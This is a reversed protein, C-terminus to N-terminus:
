LYYVTRFTYPIANFFLYIIGLVLATWMNMALAMKESFMLKIPVFIAGPFVDSFKRGNREVPAHWAGNGTNIRRNKAEKKLIIPMFTEPVFFYLLILEAGSWAIITYFTIRWSVNQNIFGGILPGICPGILM